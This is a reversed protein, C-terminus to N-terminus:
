KIEQIEEVKNMLDEIIKYNHKDNKVYPLSLMGGFAGL